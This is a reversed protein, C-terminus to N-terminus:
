FIERVPLQWGPVVDDGDLSDKETLITVDEQSRYVKILRTQPEVVIVMRTGANLWDQVKEEVAFYTDAPSIVEVALDPAGPWFGEVEEGEALREQRVFAVDPARVTDPDSSLKFGTEAAFVVGLQNSKVHVGLPLSINMVIRGHKHGAPSIKRLEGKVLEYRFGDEPIRLLDEATLHKVVTAM